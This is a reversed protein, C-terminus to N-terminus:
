ACARSAQAALRQLRVRVPQPDRELDASQIAVTGSTIRISFSSRATSSRAAAADAPIVEGRLQRIGVVANTAVRLDVNKMEIWTRPLTDVSVHRSARATTRLPSAALAPRSSLDIAVGAAVIVMAIVSAILVRVLARGAPVAGGAATIAAYATTAGLSAPPQRTPSDM